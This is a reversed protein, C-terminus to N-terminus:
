WSIDAAALEGAVAAAESEPTPADLCEVAKEFRSQAKVSDRRTMPRLFVRIRKDVWSDTEAGYSEVLTRRMGINPVIRYGDTFVIVPQVTRQTTFGNRMEEEVVASITGEYSGGMNQLDAGNLWLKLHRRMDVSSRGQGQGQGQAQGQDQRQGQHQHKHQHQYNANTSPNTNPNSNDNTNGNVAQIPSTGPRPRPRSERRAAKRGDPFLAERAQRYEARLRNHTERLRELECEREHMQGLNLHLLERHVALDRALRYESDALETIIQDRVDDTM